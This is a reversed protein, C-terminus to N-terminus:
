RRAADLGDRLRQAWSKLIRDAEAKNTVSNTWQLRGMDRGEQRDRARALVEGTTGDVLELLLTM